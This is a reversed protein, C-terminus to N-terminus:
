EVKIIKFFAKDRNRPIRVTTAEGPGAMFPENNLESWGSATPSSVYEVTWEASAGLDTTVLVQYFNGYDTNFTVTIMEPTLTMGEVVIPELAVTVATPTEFIHGSEDIIKFLYSEGPTLGFAEVTYTNSGFGVVQESPVNAVLVWQGDLMAYIEIDNSGNENVTSIEIMVRGNGAAYVKLDIQTSLPHESFGFNLQEWPRAALVGYGSIVPYAIM